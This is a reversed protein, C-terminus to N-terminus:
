SIVPSPKMQVQNSVSPVFEECKGNNYLKRIAKRTIYLLGYFLQFFVSFVLSVIFFAYYVVVIIKPTGLNM